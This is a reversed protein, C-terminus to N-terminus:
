AGPRIPAAPWGGAFDIISGTLFRARTTSLFLILEGIEDQRGLRRMPVSAEVYARGDPDDVFVARPYYAESYFFNPAVANIAIDMPALEIALSRVLANAADRAADPIAGGFMPLKTRCSTVMVIAGGGQQKFRPIVSRVLEFPQVVLMELTRRLDDPSAETTARHVAPYHDNSIVADIHGGKSWAADAVDGVSEAVVREAGVQTHSFEKWVTDDVFSYDHVLVRFGHKLLATVAAPGAYGTAHTVLAVKRRENV